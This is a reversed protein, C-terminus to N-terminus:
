HVVEREGPRLLELVAKRIRLCVAQGELDRGARPQDARIATKLINRQGRQDIVLKAGLYIDLDSTLM